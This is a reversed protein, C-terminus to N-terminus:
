LYKKISNYLNKAYFGFGEANPHVYLDAYLGEDHPVFDFGDIATVRDYKQALDFIHNRVVEFRGMQRSEECDKRWIPTIAFIKVGPYNNALLEFFRRSNEKFEDCSIISWDNTGYAVTILEPVFDDKCEALEPFFVEGGIAKNYSELGLMDALIYAYSLTPYIADYGQTISDGFMLLKKKEAVPEIVSNDELGIAKVIPEASWPFVIRVTKMGEKLDVSRKENSLVFEGGILKEGERINTFSEVKEGDCLIDFAYYGRSSAIKVDYEMYLRPSDTKFELFVGSASFIKRLMSDDNRYKRYVNEQEETFRRFRLGNDEEIRVAGFTISKVTEYDLILM